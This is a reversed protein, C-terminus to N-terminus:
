WVHALALIAPAMLTFVQGLLGQAAAPRYTAPAAGTFTAIPVLNDVTTTPPPYIFGNDDAGNPNNDVPAVVSTSEVIPGTITSIVGTITMMSGSETGSGPLLTTIAGTITLMSGAGPDVVTTLTVPGTITSMPGTITIISGSDTGSGTTVTTGTVIATIQGTITIISGSASSTPNVPGSGTPSSSSSSGSASSTTRGSSSTSTPTSTTTTSSVASGCVVAPATPPLTNISNFGDIKISGDTAKFSVDYKTTNVQNTFVDSSATYFTYYKSECSMVLQVTQKAVTPLNNFTMPNITTLTLALDTPSQGNRVAAVINLKQVGTGSAATLASNATQAFIADSVPYGKGNNDFVKTGGSNLTVVVTFSSIASNAPIKTDFGYFSFSDDIGNADGTANTSILGGDSGDRTKYQLEVKQINAKALDNTRIRVQGTFSLEDGSDVVNLQLGYPKVDYPSIADTLVVGRPVTDLMKQLVQSCTTQYVAPDQLKTVTVNRDSNFLHFDSRAAVDPGIVLPNKTTGSLYETVIKNDYTSNTSDFDATRLVSSNSPVIAPFETSHVGGLTHGCAVLQISEEQSIGMRRFAAGLVPGSDRVDPVGVPGAQTADVRGSRTEVVPGGCSRVATYVGLAILDSMSAQSNFFRSYYVMTNNFGPGINASAFQGALEFGISADLGGTGAAVDASAMDHFATRLFGAAVSRGQTRAFSCPTVGYAFGRSMYGDHLYKIDELEDFSSPWTPASFVTLTLSLIALLGIFIQTM